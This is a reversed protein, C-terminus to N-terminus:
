TWWPDASRHSWPLTHALQEVTSLRFRHHGGATQQSELLGLRAWRTVIRPDVGLLRAAQRPRLMPDDPDYLMEIENQVSM